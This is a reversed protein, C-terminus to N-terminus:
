PTDPFYLVKLRKSAEPDYFGADSLSGGHHYITLPNSEPVVIVSDETFGPPLEDKKVMIAARGWRFTPKGTRGWGIFPSLAAYDFYSFDYYVPGHVAIFTKKPFAHVPYLPKLVRKDLPSEVKEINRFEAALKRGEPTDERYYMLDVGRPLAQAWKPRKITGGTIRVRKGADLFEGEIRAGYSYMGGRFQGESKGEFTTGTPTIQATFSAVSAPYRVTTLVSKGDPYFVMSSPYRGPIGGREKIATKAYGYYVGSYPYDGSFLADPPEEVSSCGTLILFSLILGTRRVTLGWESMSGEFGVIASGVILDYM